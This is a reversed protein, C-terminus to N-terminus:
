MAKTRLTYNTTTKAGDLWRQHGSHKTMERKRKQMTMYNQLRVKSSTALANSRVCLQQSSDTRGTESWETVDLQRRVSSETIDITVHGDCYERAAGCKM